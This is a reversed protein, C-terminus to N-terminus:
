GAFICSQDNVKNSLSEQKEFNELLAEPCVFMGRLIPLGNTMRDRYRSRKKKEKLQKEM